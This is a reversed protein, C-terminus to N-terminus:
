KKNIIIMKLGLIIAVILFIYTANLIIPNINSMIKVSVKLTVMFISIMIFSLAIVVYGVNTQTDDLEGNSAKDFGISPFVIFIISLILSLVKVFFNLDNLKRNFLSSVILLIVGVIILYVNVTQFFYSLEYSDYANKIVLRASEINSSM